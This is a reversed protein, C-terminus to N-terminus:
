SARTLLIQLQQRVQGLSLTSDQSLILAVLGSVIPAAASTGSFQQYKRQANRSTTLIGEGYTYFPIYEGYNSFRSIHGERDISGVAIVNSLTAESSNAKLESRDNGASFVVAIGKGDRGNQALDNIVDAVPELLLQSAWSCNIVDAGALRALNFALLLNSTWSETDRIAILEAQPAIGDIGINNHEAFIIGAVQTGHRDIELKPSADRNHSQMDYQFALRTNKLDEHNLDFGDDIIAVKVSEGRTTKWMAGIGLLEIPDINPRPAQNEHHPRKVQLLDPQVLYVEDRQSLANITEGITTGEAISAGYYISDALRYLEVVNTISENLALVDKKSLSISVKLIIRSGSNLTIDNFRYSKGDSTTSKLHITESFNDFIIEQAFLNATFFLGLLGMCRIVGSFRPRM